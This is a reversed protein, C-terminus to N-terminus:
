EINRIETRGIGIIAHMYGFDKEYAVEFDKEYAVEFDKEYAVEFFLIWIRFYCKGSLRWVRWRTLTM